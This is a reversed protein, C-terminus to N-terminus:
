VGHMLHNDSLWTLIHHHPAHVSDTPVHTATKFSRKENEAESKKKNEKNGDSKLQLLVHHKRSFNRRKISFYEM